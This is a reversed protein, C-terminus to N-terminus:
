GSLDWIPYAMVLFPIMYPLVTSLLIQLALFQQQSMSEETRAFDCGEGTIDLDTIVAPAM